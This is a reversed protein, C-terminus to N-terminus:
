RNPIPRVKVVLVDRRVEDCDIRLRAWLAAAALLNVAADPACHVDSTLADNGLRHVFEKGAAAADAAHQSTSVLVPKGTGSVVAEALLLRAHGRQWRDAQTTVTLDPQYTALADLIWATQALGTALVGAGAGASWPRNGEGQRAKGLSRWDLAGPVPLAM